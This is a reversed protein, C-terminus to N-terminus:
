LSQTEQSPFPYVKEFPGPRGGLGVSLMRFLAPKRGEATPSPLTKHPFEWHVGSGLRPTRSGMQVLSEVSLPLLATPPLATSRYAFPRRSIPAHKFIKAKRIMARGRAVSAMCDFGLPALTPRRREAQLTSSFGRAQANALIPHAIRRPAFYDSEPLANPGPTRSVHHAGAFSLPASHVVFSLAGCLLAQSGEPFDVSIARRAQNRRETQSLVESHAGKSGLPSRPIRETSSKECRTTIRGNRWRWFQLRAAFRM